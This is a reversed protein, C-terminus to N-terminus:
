NIGSFKYPNKAGSINTLPGCDLLIKLGKFTRRNIADSLPTNGYADKTHRSAGNEVARDIIMSIKQHNVAHSLLNHGKLCVADKKAGARILFQAAELNVATNLTPSTALLLPTQAANNRLELLDPNSKLLADMISVDGIKASWHLATNGLRIDHINTSAGAVLLQQVSIIQRYEVALMLPTKGDNNQANLNFQEKNKLLTALLGGASTMQENSAFQWM